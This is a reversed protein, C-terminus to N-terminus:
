QDIKLSVFYYDTSNYNKDFKVSKALELVLSFGKLAPDVTGNADFPLWSLIKGSESSVESQKIMNVPMKTSAEIRAAVQKYVKEGEQMTSFDGFNALLFQHQFMGTEIRTNVAGELQVKSNYEGPSVYTGKLAEFRDKLGNILSLLQDDFSGGSNSSSNNVQTQVAGGKSLKKLYEFAKEAVQQNPMELIIVSNTLKEPAQDDNVIVHYKIVPKGAAASLSITYVNENTIYDLRKTKVINKKTFDIDSLAITFQEYGEFKTLSDGDVWSLESHTDGKGKLSSGHIFHDDASFLKQMEADGDQAAASFSFLICCTSILIRANIM